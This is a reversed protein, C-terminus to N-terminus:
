ASKERETALVLDAICHFRHRLRASPAIFMQKM